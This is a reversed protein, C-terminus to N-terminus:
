LNYSDISYNKATATGVRRGEHSAILYLLYITYVIVFIAFLWASSALQLVM